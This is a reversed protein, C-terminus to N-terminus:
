AELPEGVQLTDIRVKTKTGGRALRWGVIIFVVGSALFLLDWILQNPGPYVHHIKLLHHDVLGEVFNFWGWGCLIWSWLVGSKWVERRAETVRAYLVYLGVLVCLWTVTHFVGDGLTNMRLGAVTDVSIKASFMHHWQLLQHLFIGDFFGGLGIGLVIGPLKLHLISPNDHHAKSMYLKSETRYSLQIKKLSILLM